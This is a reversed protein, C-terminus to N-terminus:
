VSSYIHVSCLVFVIPTKWGVSFVPEQVLEMELEIFKPTIWQVLGRNWWNKFVSLPEDNPTACPENCLSQGVGPFFAKPAVQHVLKEPEPGM